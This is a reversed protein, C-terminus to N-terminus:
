SSFDDMENNLIIGDSTMVTSGWYLNVAICFTLARCSEEVVVAVPKSTTLSIVGGWQDAAALHSTGGDVLVVYNNPDYQVAM